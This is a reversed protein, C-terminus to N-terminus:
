TNVLCYRDLLLIPSRNHSYQFGVKKFDKYLENTSHLNLRIGMYLRSTKDRMRNAFASVPDHSTLERFTIFGDKRLIRKWEIFLAELQKEDFFSFFGDTDIWDITNKKIFDLHLANAQRVEIASTPFSNQVLRKISQVQEKGLDIIMIKSQPNMKLVYDLYEKATIEGSVGCLLCYPHQRQQIPPVNLHASDKNTNSYVQRLYNPWLPFKSIIQFKKYFNKM